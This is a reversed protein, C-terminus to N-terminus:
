NSAFAIQIIPLPNSIFVLYKLSFFLNLPWSNILPTLNLMKIKYNILKIKRALFEM